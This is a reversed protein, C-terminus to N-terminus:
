QRGRDEMAKVVREIAVAYAALRMDPKGIAEMKKWTAAFANDMIRELKGLVEEETWYYNEANQVQEFYSVTVGGANSLIDPAILVGRNLLTKEAEPTVPGNAVEVIISARITDVNGEHISNELAAPILIDVDQSLVAESSATEASPFDALSKTQKKHQELAKIDLGKNSIVTAKSDAIAIVKFGKSSLLRALYSGGNGFGQIAVTLSGSLNRSKVINEIVRFAGQATAYSRAQSGGISLPKGTIVGPAQRGTLIEYEDLMWGMIRPDTQVDPAPVDLTPGVFSIISRMYGRSLRELEGTSLQKPDVIVGGKGGGLPIGVVATKWTMWMSLAKVEELSVEPHFRIGGKFPGRANNHQSRFGTFVEIRGDDMKVPIQVTLIRQPERLQVYINESIKLISRVLRLQEQASEFPNKM